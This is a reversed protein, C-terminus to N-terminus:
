KKSNWPYRNVCKLLTERNYKYPILSIPKQGWLISKAIIESFGEFEVMRIAGTMLKTQRNMEERSVRGMIHVNDPFANLEKMLFGQKFSSGYLYYDVDPNKWAIDGIKDWGYLLFDDGSVSSYYSNKIFKNLKPFDKVDGLFSPCVKAKIGLKKLLDAEVTNEVWNEFKKLYPVFDKPNVRQKGKDDIWWGESFHRLDSGAWWIM